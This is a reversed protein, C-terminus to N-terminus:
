AAKRDTIQELVSIHVDDHTVEIAARHNQAVLAHRAPMPDAKFKSAGLAITECNARPDLDHGSVYRLSVFNVTTSTVQRLIVQAHVKAQSRRRLDLTNLNM